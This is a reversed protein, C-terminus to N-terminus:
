KQLKVNHILVNIKHWNKNENDDNVNNEKYIEMLQFSGSVNLKTWFGHIKSCSNLNLHESKSTVRISIVKCFTDLLTGSPTWDVYIQFVVNRLMQSFVTIM